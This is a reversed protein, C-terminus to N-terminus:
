MMGIRAAASRFMCEVKPSFHFAGLYDMTRYGPNDRHIIAAFSHAEDLRDVAALCHAAIALIHVHANPRSAAKMAWDAADEYEGLRFLAM